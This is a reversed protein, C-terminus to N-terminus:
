HVTTVVRAGAYGCADIIKGVYTGPAFTAADSDAGATRARDGSRGHPIVGVFGQFRSKRDYTRRAYSRRTLVRDACGVEPQMNARLVPVLWTTIPWGVTETSLANCSSLQVLYAM